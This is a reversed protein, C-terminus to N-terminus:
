SLRPFKSNVFSILQEYAPSNIKNGVRTVGKPGKFLSSEGISTIGMIEGRKNLLSSGSSGLTGVVGCMTMALPDPGKDDGGNASSVIGSEFSFPLYKPYSIRYVDQGVFPATGSISAVNYRGSPANLIRLIALDLGEDFEVVSCEKHNESDFNTTFKADCTIRMPENNQDRFIHYCTLIHAGEHVLTGSACTEYLSKGRQIQIKLTVMTPRMTCM